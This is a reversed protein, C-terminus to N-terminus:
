SARQELREAELLVKIEAQVNTIQAELDRRMQCLTILRAQLKEKTKKRLEPTVHTLDAM